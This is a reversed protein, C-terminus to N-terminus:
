SERLTRLMERPFGLSERHSYLIGKPNATTGSSYHLCAVEDGTPSFDEKNGISLQRVHEIFGRNGDEILHVPWDNQMLSDFHKNQCFVLTPEVYSLYKNINQNGLNFPFPNFVAGIRLTAFFLILYEARNNIIISIIDGRSAGNQYLYEVAKDVLADMEGYSYTVGSIGDYLLDKEPQRRAHFRLLDSLTLCDEVREIGKM